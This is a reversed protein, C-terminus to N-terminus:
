YCGFDRTRQVWKKERILNGQNKGRVVGEGGRSIGGGRWGGVRMRGGTVM